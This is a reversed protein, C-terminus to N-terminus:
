GCAGKNPKPLGAYRCADRAGHAPFLERLYERSWRCDGQHKCLTRQLLYLDPAIQYKTYFDRLFNIAIWHDEGLVLQDAEAMLEAIAPSWDSSDFLFGEDDVAIARGDITLETLPLNLRTGTEPHDLRMKLGGNAYNFAAETFIINNFVPYLVAV